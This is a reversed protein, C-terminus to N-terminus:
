TRLAHSGWEYLEDHTIFATLWRDEEAVPIQWYGSKADFTSIIKSSGVKSLTEDQQQEHLLRNADESLSEDSHSSHNVFEANIVDTDALPATTDENSSTVQVSPVAVDVNAADNVCEAVCVSNFSSCTQCLM